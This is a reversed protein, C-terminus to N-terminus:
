PKKSSGDDVCIIEDDNGINQIVSRLCRKWYEKPTNYGPVIVSLRVNSTSM